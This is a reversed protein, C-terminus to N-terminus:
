NQNKLLNALRGKLYQNLSTEASKIAEIIEPRGDLVSINDEMDRSLQDKVPLNKIDNLFL